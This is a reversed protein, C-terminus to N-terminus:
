GGPTLTLQATIVSARGSAEFLAAMARAKICSLAAALEPEHPTVTASAVEGGAGVHLTLRLKAQLKPAREPDTQLARTYCARFGPVM